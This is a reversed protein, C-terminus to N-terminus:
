KRIRLPEEVIRNKWYVKKSLAAKLLGISLIIGLIPSVISYLKSYRNLEAGYVHNIVLLTYQIIGLVTLIQFGYVIGYVLTIIPLYYGLFVLFAGLLARSKKAGHRRLVRALVDITDHIEDYWKTIVNGSTHIIKIDYGNRKVHEAFDRDEVISDKVVKHTGLEEYLKKKIGWCCGYYWALKKNKNYVRNFGMFAHSFTTLLTEVLKCRITRCMFIPFLSVIGNTQLITNTVRLLLDKSKIWTDGDIFFLVDGNSSRYGTYYLYPKPMWGHPIKDVRIYKINKYKKMYEKVVNATNDTSNDDVVIIEMSECEKQNTLSKLLLPITEEENRVPIIVSVHSGENKGHCNDELKFLCKISSKISYLAYLWIIMNIISLIELGFAIILAVSAEQLLM